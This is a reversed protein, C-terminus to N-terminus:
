KVRSNLSIFFMLDWHQKGRTGERASFVPLMSRSSAGGNQVEGEVRGGTCWRLVWEGRRRGRGGKSGGEARHDCGIKITAAPAFAWPRTSPRLRLRAWEFWRECNARAWHRVSTCACTLKKGRGSPFILHSRAHTQRAKCKKSFRTRQFAIM